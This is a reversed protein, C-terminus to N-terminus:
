CRVRYIFCIQLMARPWLSSIIERPFLSNCSVGSSTLLLLIRYRNHGFTLICPITGWNPTGYAFKSNNGYMRVYSILAAPFLHFFYDEFAEHFLSFKLCNRLSQYIKYLIMSNTKMERLHFKSQLDGCNSILFLWVFNVM